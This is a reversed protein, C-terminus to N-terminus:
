QQFDAPSHEALGREPEQPLEAPIEAPGVQPIHTVKLLPLLSAFGEEWGEVHNGDGFGAVEGAAATPDTLSSPLVERCLLNVADDALAFTMAGSEEADQTTFGKEVLSQEVEKLLVTVAIELEEGIAGEEGVIDGLLETPCAIDCGEDANFTQLFLTVAATLAVLDILACESTNTSAALCSKDETHCGADALAIVVFKDGTLV